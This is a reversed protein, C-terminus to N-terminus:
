LGAFLREADQVSGGTLQRYRQVAQLRQGDQVLALVEPPINLSDAYPEFAKGASEGLSGLYTEIRDFREVIGEFRAQLQQQSYEGPM